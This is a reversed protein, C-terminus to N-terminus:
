TVSFRISYHNLTGPLPRDSALRHSVLTFRNDNVLESLLASTLMLVLQRGPCFAPGDSFPVLASDNESGQSLWRDPAFKHADAVHREDRHFYPTYILVGCQAPMIGEDWQVPRTTQRLIMPTTPWLRLSELVCSRLFPLNQRETEDERVEQRACGSQEGHTALVALTRFAAMGAPDFAFLWQPIQNVPEADPHTDMNAMIYALSGEESTDLRERIDALFQARLKKRKPKLFAWNADKRLRTIMDTVEHDERAKDGFVVRRVIRYWADIFVNWDLEGDEQARRLM